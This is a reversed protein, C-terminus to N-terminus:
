FSDVMHNLSLLAGIGLKIQVSELLSELVMVKTCSRVLLLKHDLGISDFDVVFL